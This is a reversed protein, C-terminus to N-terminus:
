VGRELEIYMLFPSKVLFIFGFRWAASMKQMKGEERRRRTRHGPRSGATCM